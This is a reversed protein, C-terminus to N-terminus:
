RLAERIDMRRLLQREARAEADNGPLDMFRQLSRIGAARPDPTVPLREVTM